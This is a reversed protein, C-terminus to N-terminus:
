ERDDVAPQAGTRRARINQWADIIAIVTGALALALAIRDMGGARIHAVIVVVAWAEVVTFVVTSLVRGATRHRPATMPAATRATDTQVAM